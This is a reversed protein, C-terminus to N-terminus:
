IGSNILLRSARFTLDLLAWIRPSLIVDRFKLGLLPKCDRTLASARDSYRVPCVSAHSVLATRCIDGDAGDETRGIAHKRAGTDRSTGPSILLVANELAPRCNSIVNLADSGGDSKRSAKVRRQTRRAIMLCASDTRRRPVADRSRAFDGRTDKVATVNADNEDNRTM